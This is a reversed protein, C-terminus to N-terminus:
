ERLRRVDGVRRRDENDVVIWSIEKRQFANELASIVSNGLSLAATLREEGQHTLLERGDHQIHLHRFEAANLKGPQNLLAPAGLMDRNNKQRRMVEFFLM